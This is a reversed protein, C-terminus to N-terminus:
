HLRILDWYLRVCVNDEEIHAKVLNPLETIFLPVIFGEPFEEYIQNRGVVKVLALLPPSLTLIRQCFFQLASIEHEHHLASSVASNVHM